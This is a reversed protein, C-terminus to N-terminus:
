RIAGRRPVLLAIKATMWAMRPPAYVEHEAFVGDPLVQTLGIKVLAMALSNDVPRHATNLTQAMDNREGRHSSAIKSPIGSAWNCLTGRLLHGPAPLQGGYQGGRPSRARLARASLNASAEAEFPSGSIDPCRKPLSLAASNEPSSM